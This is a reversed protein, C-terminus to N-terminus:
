LVAPRRGKSNLFDCAAFQPREGLAGIKAVLEDTSDAVVLAGKETLAVHRNPYKALLEPRLALLRDSRACFDRHAALEEPGARHYEYAVKGPPGMKIITM